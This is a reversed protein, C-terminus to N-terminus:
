MAYGIIQGAWRRDDLNEDLSKAEIFLVPERQLLLAYDVPNARPVRKYELKVEDLDEMDWGLARLVPVILTAKTDQERIGSGRHREVREAVIALTRRLGDAGADAEMGSLKAAADGFTLFLPVPM